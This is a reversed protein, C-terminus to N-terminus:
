RHEAGCRARRASVMLQFGTPRTSGAAIRFRRAMRPRLFAARVQERVARDRIVRCTIAAAAAARRLTAAGVALTVNLANLQEPIIVVDSLVKAQFGAHTVTLRFHAPPLANFTYVGGADTTTTRTQNTATNTLKVTAGPIVAGSPDAVVGRLSARFQAHAAQPLLCLLAIALVATFTLVGRGGSGPKPLRGACACRTESLLIQM